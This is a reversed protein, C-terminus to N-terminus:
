DGGDMTSTLFARLKVKMGGYMHQLVYVSLALGKHNHMGCPAQHLTASNIEHICQM